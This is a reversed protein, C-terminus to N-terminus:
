RDAGSVTSRYRDVVEVARSTVTVDSPLGAFPRFKLRCTVVVAVRGGPRFESADVDVELRSCRVAERDLSGQAADLAADRAAPVSRAITAARAADAAAQDVQLQASAPAGARPALGILAIVALSLISLELAVSGHEPRRRM